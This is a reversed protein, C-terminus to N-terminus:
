PQTQVIFNFGAQYGDPTEKMALLLQDSYIADSKNQAVGPFFLQSTLVPGGPAQVKVHIHETRGPYLGPIITELSYYGNDDTFEHGRLTYGNNDYHGQADAQWFDLLAHTVPQCDSSLVYGSLWLRTGKMGPEILSAREPSGSKYYPGETMAPTLVAPNNCDPTPVSTGTPTLPMASAAAQTNEMQPPQSTPQPAERAPEAITAPESPALSPAAAQPKNVTACSALLWVGLLGCGTLLFRKFKWRPKSAM